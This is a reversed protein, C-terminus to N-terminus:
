PAVVTLTIPQSTFHAHVEHWMAVTMSTTGVKKGTINFRWRLAPDRTVTALTPDLMEVEFRMIDCDNAIHLPVANQDLFTVEIAQPAADKVISMSGRTHFGFQYFVESDNSVLDVGGAFEIHGCIGNDVAPGSPGSGCGSALLLAALGAGAITRWVIRRLSRTRPQTSTAHM